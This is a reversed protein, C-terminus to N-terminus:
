CYNEYCARLHDNLSLTSNMKFGQYLAESLAQVREPLGDTLIQKVRQYVALRFPSADYEPLALNDVSVDFKMGAAWHLICEYAQPQVEFQEFTKQQELTRGDEAYWYGFDDVKRREVGAVCWHAIEHLASSPYDFRYQIQSVNQEDKALYFPEDFGGVLRTNYASFFVDNFTKELFTANM